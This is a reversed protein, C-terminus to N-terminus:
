YTTIFTEATEETKKQMVTPSDPMRYSCTAGFHQYFTVIIYLTMLGFALTQVIM